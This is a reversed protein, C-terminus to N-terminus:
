PIPSYRGAQLQLMVPTAGPEEFTDKRRLERLPVPRRTSAVGPVLSISYEPGYVPTFRGGGCGLYVSHECEGYSSCSDPFRVIVDVWEDENLKGLWSVVGGSAGPGVEAGVEGLELQVSGAGCATSTGRSPGKSTSLTPETTPPPAPSLHCGGVWGAILVCLLSYFVPQSKM